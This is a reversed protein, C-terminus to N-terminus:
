KNMEKKKLIMIRVIVIAIAVVVIALVILITNDDFTYPLITKEKEYKPTEEMKSELFHVDEIKDGKLWLIFKDGTKTDEPQYVMKESVTKWNEEKLENHLKTALDLFEKSAKIKTYKDTFENKQLLEALSYLNEYERSSKEKILQYKGNLIDKQLVAVGVRTTLTYKDGTTADTVKRAELDKEELKVPIITSVKSMNELEIKTINDNIDIELGSIKMQENTKVWLYTKNAFLAITADDNVYAINNTGQASDVASNVFALTAVDAEKNNSFAFQFEQNLYAKLYIIYESESQKVIVADENTGYAIIPMGVTIIGIIVVMLLIKLKSFKM